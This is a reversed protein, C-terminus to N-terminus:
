KIENRKSTPPLLFLGKPIEGHGGHEAPLVFPSVGCTPNFTQNFLNTSRANQMLTKGVDHASRLFTESCIGCYNWAINPV